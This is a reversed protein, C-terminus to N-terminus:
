LEQNQGNSTRPGASQQGRPHSRTGSLHAFIEAEPDRTWLSYEIQLAAIPHVRHAQHLTEPGVEALGVYRVKGSRVLEAMAAVTEVVPVQPDSRHLYYLDIVNVGLRRLSADCAAKVYSPRGDFGCITPDKRSRTLGFKTALFVRDRRGKIARGVLEENEGHGYADSTDLLTVHKDLALQITAISQKENQIGYFESMGMCGLGLSSVVPGNRGLSRHKM